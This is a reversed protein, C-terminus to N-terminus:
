WGLASHLIADEVSVGFIEARSEFEELLALAEDGQFSHASGNALVISISPTLDDVKVTSGERRAVEVESLIQQKQYSSM